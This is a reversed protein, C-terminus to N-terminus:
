AWGCHTHSGPVKDTRIILVGTYDSVEELRVRLAVSTCRKEEEDERGSAGCM